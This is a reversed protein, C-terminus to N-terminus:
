SGGIMANFLFSCDQVNGSLDMKVLFARRLGQVLILKM